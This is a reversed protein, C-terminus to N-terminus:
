PPGQRSCGFPGRACNRSTDCAGSRSGSVTGCRPLGAPGSGCIRQNGAAKVERAPVHDNVHRKPRSPGTSDYLSRTGRDVVNFPDALRQEVLGLLIWYTSAGSGHIRDFSPSYYSGLGECDPFPLTSNGVVMKVVTTIM